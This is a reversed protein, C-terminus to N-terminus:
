PSMGHVTFMHNCCRSHKSWTCRAQRLNHILAGLNSKAISALLTLQDGWYALSNINILNLYYVASRDSICIMSSQEMTMGFNM